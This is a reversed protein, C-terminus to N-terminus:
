AIGWQIYLDSLQKGGGTSTKDLGLAKCDNMFSVRLDYLENSSYTGEYYYLLVFRPFASELTIHNKLRAYKEEDITKYKEIAAYAEDIIDLWRCMTQKPWFKADKVEEYLWGTFITPYEQELWRLYGQMEDFYRRMPEAADEFYGKFFTDMLAEQDINVDIMAKADFYIKLREFGSTASDGSETSSNYWAGEPRLMLAGQSQIFRYTEQMTDFTNFPFMASHFNTRYIWLMATESLAKWGLMTNYPVENKEHYFSQNYYTDDFFAIFPIVHPNCLVSDDIAEFGGNVEKVPPKMYVQYAFFMIYLERGPQNEAIWTQVLNDVDNCFKIVSASATGYIAKEKVCEECSCDPVSDECTFPAAIMDPYQICAAEIKEAVELVLAAYENCPEGQENFLQDDAREEQTLRATYCITQDSNPAYWSPHKGKYEALPLVDIVNHWLKGGLPIIVDEPKLYGMAYRVDDQLSTGFVPLQIDPREVIDMTPLYKGDKTYLCTDGSIMDYGVVHKLFSIAAQQYGYNHNTMIFVSDGVSKMYYGTYGLNEEPMQLGAAAFMEADGFIIYKSNISWGGVNSSSIIEMEAGTALRIHKAILGAAKVIASKTTEDSGGFVLKYETKGNDTFIKTSESVNVKHLVNKTVVHEQYDSVVNTAQSNDVNVGSFTKDGGNDTAACASFYGFSLTALLVSIIQNIKKM